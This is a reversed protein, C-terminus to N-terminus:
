RTEEKVKRPRGGLKGNEKAALAKAETKASGGKSQMGYTSNEELERIIKGQIRIVSEMYKDDSPQLQNQAKRYARVADGGKLQDGVQEYYSSPKYM